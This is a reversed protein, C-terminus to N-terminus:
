SLQKVVGFFARSVWNMWHAVKAKFEKLKQYGLERMERVTIDSTTFYGVVTEFAASGNLPEGSPLFPKTPQSLDPVGDVYVYKVPLSGLGSSVNSPVCHHIHENEM